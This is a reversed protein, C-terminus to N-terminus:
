PPNIPRSRLSRMIKKIQEDYFHPHDSANEAALVTFTAIGPRRLVALQLREKVNQDGGVGTAKLLVADYHGGFDKPEGPQVHRLGPVGVAITASALQDLPKDLVENTRDVTVSVAALHEPSLLETRVGRNDASWGPPVGITFGAQKNTWTYWGPPLKAPRDITEVPQTTTTTGSDGCGAILV